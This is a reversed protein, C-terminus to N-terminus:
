IRKKLFSCMSRIKGREKKEKWTLPVSTGSIQSVLSLLPPGAGAGAALAGAAGAVVVIVVVVFFFLLPRFVFAYGFFSRVFSRM